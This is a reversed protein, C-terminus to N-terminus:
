DGIQTSSQSKKITEEENTKTIGADSSDESDSSLYETPPKISESTAESVITTQKELHNNFPTIEEVKQQDKQRQTNSQDLLKEPNSTIDVVAKWFSGWM